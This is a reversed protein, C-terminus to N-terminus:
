EQHVLAMFQHPVWDLHRLVVQRHVVLCVGDLV